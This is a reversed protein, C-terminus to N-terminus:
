DFVLRDFVGLGLALLSQTTCVQCQKVQLTIFTPYGAQKVIRGIAKMREEVAVQENFWQTAVFLLLYLSSPVLLSLPAHATAREAQETLSQM